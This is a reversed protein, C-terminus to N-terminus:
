CVWGGVMDGYTKSPLESAMATWAMPTSVAMMLLEGEALTPLPAPDPCCGLFPQTQPNEHQSTPQPSLLVHHPEACPGMHGPAQLLDELLADAVGVEVLDQLALALGGLTQELLEEVHHAHGSRRWALCLGQHNM